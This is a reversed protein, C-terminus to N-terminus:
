YMLGPPYPLWWGLAAWAPVAAVTGLASLEAGRVDGPLRGCNFTNREFEYWNAEFKAGPRVGVGVGVGFGLRAGVGVGNILFDHPPIDICFDHHLVHLIM